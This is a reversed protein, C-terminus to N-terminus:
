AGDGRPEALSAELAFAPPRLRLVRWLIRPLMLLKQRGSTRARRRHVNYGIAGIQGLIARYLLAAVGVAPRAAPSLLAIGPLAQDYLANARAIQMEMLAIFREDCVGDLIDQRSLGAEALDSVPLYVRGRAADEGVDRLINTLQLAQGLRIAYPAADAQGVNKALGLIPLSLLGVTSAVLYCYRELEAWSAYQRKVLDLAIGDILEDQYRTEVGYRDRVLSWALLLPDRQAPAPRAAAARWAEVDALSAGHKDVLDDTARCFAYLARIARRLAGPLFATAFYFTKSNHRTSRETARFAAEIDLARNAAHSVESFVM